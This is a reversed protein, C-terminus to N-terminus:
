GMKDLQEDIDAEIVGHTDPLAFPENSGTESKPPNGVQTEVNSSKTQEHSRLVMRLKVQKESKGEGPENEANCLKKKSKTNARGNGHKKGANEVNSSKTQKHSRLVMSNKVQKESTGEEPDNGPNSLNKKSNTNAHSNDHETEKDANTGVAFMRKKNMLSFPLPVVFEKFNRKCTASLKEAREDLKTKELFAKWNRLQEGRPSRVPGILGKFVVESFPLVFCQLTDAKQLICADNLISDNPVDIHLPLTLSLLLLETTEEMEVQAGDESFETDHFVVKRIDGPNIKPLTFRYFGELLPFLNHLDEPEYGEGRMLFQIWNALDIPKPSPYWMLWEKESIPEEKELEPNSEKLYSTKELLAKILAQTIQFRSVMLTGLWIFAAQPGCKLKNEAKTSLTQNKFDLFSFLSTCNESNNLIKENRMKHGKFLVIFESVDLMTDSSIQKFVLGDSTNKLIGTMTHLNDKEMWAVFM